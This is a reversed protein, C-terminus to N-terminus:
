VPTPRPTSMTIVPRTVAIRAPLYPDGDIGGSM